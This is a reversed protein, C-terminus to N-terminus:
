CLYTSSSYKNVLPRSVGVKTGLQTRGRTEGGARWGWDMQSRASTVRLHAGTNPPWHGPRLTLSGACCPAWPQAPQHQSSDGEGGCPGQPFPAKSRRQGARGMHTGKMRKMLTLLMVAFHKIDGGSLGRALPKSDEEGDGGRDEEHDHGGDQKGKGVDSCLQLTYM